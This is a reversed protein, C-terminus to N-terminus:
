KRMDLYEHELEKGTIVVDEDNNHRLIWQDDVEMTKLINLMILYNNRLIKDRESSEGAKLQSNFRYLSEVAARFDGEKICLSYCTRYYKLANKIDGRSQMTKEGLDYILEYVTDFDEAYNFRVIDTLRNIQFLKYIFSRLANLRDQHLMQKIATFSIDFENLQLSLNFIKYYILEELDTDVKNEKIINKSSELALKLADALKDRKEFLHSLNIFYASKSSVFITEIEMKLEKNFIIELYKNFIGNHTNYSTIEDVALTFMERAKEPKNEDDDLTVLGRLVTSFESDPLYKFFDKEITSYKKKNILESIVFYIFKENSLQENFVTIIMNITNNKIFVKGSNNLNIFKMLLNENGLLNINEILDITKLNQLNPTFINEISKNYDVTLLILLLGTVIIKASKANLLISKEILKESFLSMVSSNNLTYEDFETNFLMTLFNLVDGINDISGLTQLIHTVKENNTTKFIFKEFIENMLKDHSNRSNIMYNNIKYILEGEFSTLYDLSLDVLKTLSDINIQDQYPFDIISSYKGNRNFLLMEFSTSNRIISYSSGGKICVLFPDSHNSSSDFIVSQTKYYLKEKIDQCVSVFNLWSKRLTFGNNIVSQNTILKLIINDLTNIDVDNNIEINYIQLAMQLIDNNYESMIFEISKSNLEDDNETFNILDMLEKANLKQEDDLGICDSWQVNNNIDDKKVICQKIFSTNSYSWCIAYKTFKNNTTVDYNLPIWQENQSPHTIKSLLDLEIDNRETISLDFSFIYTQDLKLLLSLLNNSNSTAIFKLYGNCSTPSLVSHHLIDPIYNNLDYQRIIQSSSLSYFSLKKDFSITVFIDNSLKLMDFISDVTVSQNLFKLEQVQESTRFFKSKLNSLYSVSTFPTVDFPSSVNLRSLLLLGGDTTSVISKYEDITLISLVSRQDFSYPMSITCWDYFNEYNLDIPNEFISYNLRLSVVIGLQLILDIVITKEDLEMITFCEHLCDAPLKFSYSILEDNIANNFKIPKVTLISSNINNNDNNSDDGSLEFSLIPIDLDNVMNLRHLKAFSTKTISKNSKLSLMDDLSLCAGKLAKGLNSPLSVCQMNHLKEEIPVETCTYPSGTM